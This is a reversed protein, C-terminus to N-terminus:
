RSLRRRGSATMRAASVISNAGTTTPEWRASPKPSSRRTRCVDKYEVEIVYIAGQPPRPTDGWWAPVRLWAAEGKLAPRYSKEGDMAVEGWGRPNLEKLEAIAWSQPLAARAALPVVFLLAGALWRRM